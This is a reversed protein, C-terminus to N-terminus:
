DCRCKNRMLVGGAAVARSLRVLPEPLQRCYITSIALIPFDFSNKLPGGGAGAVGLNANKKCIRNPDIPM